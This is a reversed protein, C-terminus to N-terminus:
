DQAEEAGEEAPPQGDEASAPRAAEPLPTWISFMTIDKREPRVQPRRVIQHIIPAPLPEKDPDPWLPEPVVGKACDCLYKFDYEVAQPILIRKGYCIAAPKAEAEEADAKASGEEPEEKNEEAPADGDQQDAAPEEDEPKPEEAAVGGLQKATVEGFFQELEDAFRQYEAIEEM